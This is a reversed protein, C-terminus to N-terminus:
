SRRDRRWVFKLGSWDNDIMAVKIDVIGLPLALDRIGNEDIDSIHGAAKRPWAIWLSADPFIADALAPIAVALDDRAHFFAVTVSARTDAKRVTTVAEPLDPVSWGRPAGILAVHHGPKVGLKKALGTM